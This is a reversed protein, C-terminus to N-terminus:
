FPLLFNVHSKWILMFGSRKSGFGRSCGWCGKLRKSTPHKRTQYYFTDIMINEKHVFFTSELFILM